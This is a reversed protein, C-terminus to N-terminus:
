EVCLRRIGVELVRRQRAAPWQRPEFSAQFAIGEVLAVVLAVLDVVAEDAPGVCRLAADVRKRFGAARQRQVAALAPSDVAQGWFAFWVKWRTRRGIDLPLIESLMRIVDDLSNCPAELVAVTQEITRRLAALMLEDKSRFYHTIATVSTAGDVERAVDRLTTGGVGLQAVVRGAADALEDRREDHNVVKPM